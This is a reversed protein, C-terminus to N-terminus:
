MAEKKFAAIVEKVDPARFIASGVALANVGAEKLLSVLDLRVGGDVMINIDKDHQRLARVKDIVVNQFPQGYSGPIGGRLLVWDIANTYSYVSEVSTEVNLTLGIEKGRAHVKEIVDQIDRDSDSEQFAEKQVFIREVGSELWPFIVTMPNVVMLDAELSTHTEISSLEQPRNWTRAAVFRGDMIDLQVWSVYPEVKAIKEKLEAFNKAIIAPIIEVQM